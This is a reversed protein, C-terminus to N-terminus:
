LKIPHGPTPTEALLVMREFKYKDLRQSTAALDYVLGWEVSEAGSVFFKNSDKCQKGMRELTEGTMSLDPGAMGKQRRSATGGSLKWAATSRDDLIMGVVSCGPAGSAQSQPLFDLDTPYGERSDTKIKVSRAGSKFLEELYTSVWPLKARRDVRVTLDQGEVYKKQESLESRLHALGEANDTLTREFGVKAGISDIEFDPPGSPEPLASAPPAPKAADPGQDFANKRPQSECAAGLCVAVAACVIATSKM